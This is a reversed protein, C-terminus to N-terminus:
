KTEKILIEVHTEEGPCNWPTIGDQATLKINITSIRGTICPLALTGYGAYSSFSILEYPSADINKSYLVKGYGNSSYSFGPAVLSCHLQISNKGDSIDPANPLDATTSYVTGAVAGILSAVPESFRLRYTPSDFKVRVYGTSLNGVIQCYPLDDTTNWDSAAEMITSLESNMAQYTWLGASISVPKWTTGSDPSYEIWGGTESVNQISYYTYGSRLAVSYSKESDLMLPPNLEINFDYNTDTTKSTTHTILYTELKNTSSAM